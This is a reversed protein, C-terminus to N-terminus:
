DTDRSRLRVNKLFTSDTAPARDYALIYVSLKQPYWVPSLVASFFAQGGKVLTNLTDVVVYVTDICCSDGSTLSKAYLQVFLSDTANARTPSIWDGEIALYNPAKRGGMGDPLSVDLTKSYLAGNAVLTDPNTPLMSGTLPIRAEQYLRTALLGGALILVLMVVVTVKLIRM